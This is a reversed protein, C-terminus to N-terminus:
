RAKRAKSTKKVETHKMHAKLDDVAQAYGELWAQAVVGQIKLRQRQAVFRPKCCVNLTKTLEVARESARLLLRRQAAAHNDSM